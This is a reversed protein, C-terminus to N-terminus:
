KTLKKKNSDKSVWSRWRKIWKYTKKSTIDEASMEVKIDPELGNKNINVGNPTLWKAVTVKVATNQPLGILEQVSGKGFTKVGVIKAYGQDRLAGSVIEAASASGGNALIM